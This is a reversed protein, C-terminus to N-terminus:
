APSRSFKKAFHIDTSFTKFMNLFYNGLDFHQFYKSNCFPNYTGHCVLSLIESKIEQAAYQDLCFKHYHSQDNTFVVLSLLVMGLTILPCNSAAKYLLVVIGNM